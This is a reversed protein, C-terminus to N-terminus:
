KWPSIAIALMLIVMWFNKGPLVSGAHSDNRDTLVSPPPSSKNSMTIGLNACDMGLSCEGFCPFSTMNFLNAAGEECQCVHGTKNSKACTGKGCFAWNCADFFSTNKPPDKIQPSPTQAKECSYDVTCNPIVCPLFRLHNGDDGKDESLTQRWGPDCECRYEFSTLNLSSKCKGKGCAIDKCFQDIFPSLLPALFNSSSIPQLLLFISILAISHYLPSM